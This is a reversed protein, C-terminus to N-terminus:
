LYAGNMALLCWVGFAKWQVSFRFLFIASRIGTECDFFIRIRIRNILYIQNAKLSLNNRRFQLGEIYNSERPLTSLQLISFVQNTSIISCWFIFYALSSSKSLFYRLRDVWHGAHSQFNLSLFLSYKVRLCNPSMRLSYRYYYYNIFRNIKRDATSWSPM